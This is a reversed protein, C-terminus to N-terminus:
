TSWGVSSTVPCPDAAPASRTTGALPDSIPTEILGGVSMSAPGVAIEEPPVGESAILVLPVDLVCSTREPDAPSVAINWHLMLPDNWPACAKLWAVPKVSLPAVPFPTHVKGEAPHACITM